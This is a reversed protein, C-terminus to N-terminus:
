MQAHVQRNKVGRQASFVRFEDLIELGLRFPHKDVVLQQYQNNKHWKVSYVSVKRSVAKMTRIIGSINHEVCKEAPQPLLQLLSWVIKGLLGRVCGLTPSVRQLIRNM